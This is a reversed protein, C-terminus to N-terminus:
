TSKLVQLVAFDPLCGPSALHMLRLYMEWQQAFDEFDAAKGSFQQVECGHLAEQIIPNTMGMIGGGTQINNVRARPGESGDM